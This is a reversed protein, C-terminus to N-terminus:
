RDTCWIVHKQAFLQKKPNAITAGANFNKTANINKIAILEM